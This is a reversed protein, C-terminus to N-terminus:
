RFSKTFVKSCTLRPYSKTVFLKVCMREVVMTYFCSIDSKETMVQGFKAGEKDDNQLESATASPNMASVKKGIATLCSSM